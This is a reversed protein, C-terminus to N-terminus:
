PACEGRMVRHPESTRSHGTLQSRRTRRAHLAATRPLASSQSNQGKHDGAGKEEGGGGIELTVGTPRMDGSLAIQPRSRASEPPLPGLNTGPHTRRGDGAM